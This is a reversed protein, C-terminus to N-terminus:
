EVERLTGYNSLYREPNTDPMKDIVKIMRDRTRYPIDLWSMTNIRGSLHLKSIVEIRDISFTDWRIGAAGPEWEEKMRRAM